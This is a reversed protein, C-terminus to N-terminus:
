IIKIAKMMVDIGANIADQIAKKKMVNVTSMQDEIKRMNRKLLKKYQEPTIKGSVLKNTIKEIMAKNNELIYKLQDKIKPADEKFENKMASFLDNFISDFDM